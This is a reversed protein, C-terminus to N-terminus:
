PTILYEFAMSAEAADVTSTSNKAWVSVKYKTNPTAPTWTFTNSSTWGGQAIWATGDYVFWKYLPAVNGGVPTASWTVASGTAQPALKNPSVFVALVKASVQPPPVMTVLTPGSVTFTSSAVSAEAADAANGASKVWVSVKNGGAIGPVYTFSSDTSWHKYVIWNYGNHVLWKYQLPGAGGTPNATWSVATGTLYPAVKDAVITVATVKGTPPPPPPPPPVNIAFPMSRTAEGADDDNWASRAWVAIRYNANAAAPTWVFTNSANWSGAPTWTIGDTSVAWKYSYPSTGNTPEATFTIPTNTLQPATHSATLSVSTVAARIAFPMSGTAEGADDNNGASRAWVAVRYAANATAPTWAFTNSVNWSGAPTWTSGDTSVAWKFSYPATGGTPAATFTIPTNTLQPSAHSATVSVSSVAARIAFPMSGTAEGAEAQNCASRAWVAVRYNANATTPTWTFTDSTTWTGAPTWTIGDTSVAWKYSYPGAGGTAAAAFTIPTNTLQPATHSATVSVSSVPAPVAFPMAAAAEGAEDTNWASRVKVTVQYNPNALTPTWALTNSTTWSGPSDVQSEGNTVSWKYQFPAVGETPAAAFTIPTNPLQPATKDATLTVSSVPVPAPPLDLQFVHIIPRSQFGDKDAYLQTIYLLQREADYSVGGVRVQKEFTPLEFPWVGYPMVEWPQKTGAKVAALDNLDYAWIQYQYPYAHTGKDSATPDYCYHSGDPSPQLHLAQNGTGNGYCYPGTGNRGVFLATRTGGVIAMGGMMTTAGYVSNSGSWDGLSPHEGTYYVLPSAAVTPQGVTAPDFALAAPGWSTRTVIPICCQGTAVPGGLRSRWEAPVVSMYGSVFGQKGATWVQSWGSFSPQNLQLSHSFHSKRQANTADYFINATGYLRDGYVMLGTVSVGTTGVQSLTGQTPDAFPQLFSAFPMQNVDSTILPNPITVEAVRNARSSAFMSNTAPRFAIAKGGYAFSDANVTERPLRFGGLYQFNEFSLLQLTSPDSSQAGTNVALVSVIAIAVILSARVSKTWRVCKKRMAM